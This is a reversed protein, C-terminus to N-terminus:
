TPQCNPPPNGIPDSATRSTASTRSTAVPPPSADTLTLSSIQLLSSFRWTWKPLMHPGHKTHHPCSSRGPRGGRRPAFRRPHSARLASHGHRRSRGGRDAGGPCLKQVKFSGRRGRINSGTRKWWPPSRSHDVWPPNSPTFPVNSRDYPCAHDGEVGSGSNARGAPLRSFNKQNESEGGIQPDFLPASGGL